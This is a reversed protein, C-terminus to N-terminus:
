FNKSPSFYFTRQNSKINEQNYTKIELYVARGNKDKLEIDPYGMIQKKGAKNTPRQARMDTKNIQRIVFEEVDNGAENARKRKINKKNIDKLSDIAVRKLYKLLELDEPKKKNFNLVEYGSIAEIALNFPIGKLPQMMNKVVQELQKTYEQKDM